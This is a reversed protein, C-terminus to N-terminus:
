QGVSAPFQEAYAHYRRLIRRAYNVGRRCRCVGAPFRHAVEPDDLLLMATEVNGRWRAPDLQMEEALRQADIVHRPGVNYSAVAMAVQDAPPVDPFADFLFRLYGAGGDIAEEPRYPNEIGLAKWTFPMFQFLGASGGPGTAVPNFRSEEYMLAALLRWDIGHKSGARRLLDDWPTLRGEPVKPIHPAIWRERTALEAAFVRDLFRSSRAEALYRDAEDILDGSAPNGVWVLGVRPVVVPGLRLGERDDLELRALDQDVVAVDAGGRSLKVIASSGGVRPPMLVPIMAPELPLLGIVRRVGASAVVRRGALDAVSTVEGLESRTVAVLDVTRYPRSVPFRAATLPSLPEHLAMLDGHGNELWELPDHGPPPLALEVKVGLRRALGHVLAYEYGHLGGQAVTVTTLSNRTVLRLRGSRRIAELDRCASESESRLLVKEAFLFRDVAARLQISAPRMAWVLPHLEGLRDVVTLPLGQDILRDVMESDLVMMDYRGGAVRRAMEELPLEEPVPLQELPDDSADVLEQGIRWRFSSRHAHLTRRRGRPWSGTLVVDEVWALAASPRLGAAIVAAAPFRDLAIDGRGQRLWPIILDHRPAEVIELQLDLRGALHELLKRQGGNATMVPTSAFGPRVIVRLAGTARIENLDGTTGPTPAACGAAVLVAPGLVAVLRRWVSRQVM